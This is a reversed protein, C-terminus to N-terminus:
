QMFWDFYCYSYKKIIVITKFTLRKIARFVCVSVDQIVPHQDASAGNDVVLTQPHAQSQQM